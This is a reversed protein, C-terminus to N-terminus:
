RCMTHGQRSALRGGLLGLLATPGPVVVVWGDGVGGGGGVVVVVWGGSVSYATWLM